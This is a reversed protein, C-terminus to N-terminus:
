GAENGIKIWRELRNKLADNVIKNIPEDKVASKIKIAKWVDIEITCTIAKTESWESTFNKNKIPNLRKILKEEIEKAATLGSILKYKAMVYSKEHHKLRDIINSSHGIYILGKADYLAYIGTFKNKSFARDVSEALDDSFIKWSSVVKGM